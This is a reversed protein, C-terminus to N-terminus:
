RSAQVSAFTRPWIGANQLSAPLRERAAVAAARDPYDGAVLSYWPRGNLQREFIAFPASINHITVFKEISARNTAGVLQLTYRGADRSNLWDSASAAASPRPKVSAVVSRDEVPAPGAEAVEPPRQAEGDAAATTTASDPQIEVTETASESPPSAGAEAPGIRPPAADPQRAADEPQQSAAASLADELVVDLPDAIPEVAKPRQQNADDAAIVATQVPDAPKSLQPLATAPVEIEAAVGAALDVAPRPEVRGGVETEVPQGQAPAEVLEDDAPATQDLEPASPAISPEPTPLPLATREAPRLSDPEVAQQDVGSVTEPPTLVANIPDQLVLVAVFLLGLAAAGLWPWLRGSKRRMVTEANPAKPASWKKGMSAEEGVVPRVPATPPPMQEPLGHLVDLLGGPLGGAAIHSAAVLDDTIRAAAAGAGRRLFEGTEDPEFPPLDVFQVDWDDTGGGRGVLLLRVGGDGLAKLGDRTQADAQDIADAVVVLQRDRQKAMLGEPWDDAAEPPLGLQRILEAILKVPEAFDVWAVTAEEGLATRLRGAFTTTGAGAPGRLYVPRDANRLLHLVLQLREARAPTDFYDDGAPPEPLM